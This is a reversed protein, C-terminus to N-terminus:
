RDLYIDMWRDTWSDKDIQGPTKRELHGDTLTELHRNILDVWTDKKKKKKVLARRNIQGLTGELRGETLRDM